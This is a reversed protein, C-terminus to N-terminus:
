PVREMFGGPDAVLELYVMTTQLNAHGLWKSVVNIPVDNLLWYRAASHRLTHLGAPNAKRPDNRRRLVSQAGSQVVALGTTQDYRDAPRRQCREM